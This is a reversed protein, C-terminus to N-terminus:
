KQGRARQREAVETMGRDFEGRTMGLGGKSAKEAVQMRSVGAVMDTLRRGWMVIQAQHEPLQKALHGMSVRLQLLKEYTWELREDLTPPQIRIDERQRHEDCARWTSSIVGDPGRWKAPRMCTETSRDTWWCLKTWDLFETTM